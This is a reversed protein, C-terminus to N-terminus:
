EFVQLIEFSTNRQAPVFGAGRIYSKLEEPSMAWKEKTPAGAQSVVNEEMMTSGIDDCGLQLGVQAIEGGLTPWSSQHHPINDLYIRAICLNRLYEVMTVGFKDVHRSRGVSTNENFKLSWSIFANFGTHGRAQSRDQLDRLRKLHNIRQQFTEGFGVVMTATSTLELAQAVEMIEIWEDAKTKKPSVRSRVEDDLLEAGGGPLGKLGADKLESLISHYDKGSIKSMQQIESPSFANIEIPYSKSIWSILDIYYDYPLDDNHGGQFLIRTGGLELLEEIKKGIVNKSLVYAEPDKSSHRYFGCFSCDTNCVNTYNINRDILFTAIRKPNWHYRMAQSRPALDALSANIYLDLAEEDSLRPLQNPQNQQFEISNLM